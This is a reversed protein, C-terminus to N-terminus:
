KKAWVYVWEATFSINNALANYEKLEKFLLRSAKTIIEDRDREEKITPEKGGIEPLIGAQLRRVRLFALWDKYFVTIQKHTTHIDRFGINTLQKVYYSIPRPDPFILKRQSRERLIRENITKKYYKYQEDTKIISIAIDHVRHISDDIMLIGRARGSRKINGSQFTFKGGAKLARYIGEFTDTINPILHVTNASLVHDVSDRGMLEDLAQYRGHMKELLLCTIQKNSHFINYAKGLWSPSNDVLFLSFKHLIKNTIYVASSGTGAGFDVVIDGNRIDNKVLRIMENINDIHWSARIVASHYAVAGSSLPKSPQWAIYTSTM